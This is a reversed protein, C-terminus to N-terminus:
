LYDRNIAWEGASGGTVPPSVPSPNNCCTFLYPAFDAEVGNICVDGPIKRYGRSKMFTKQTGDTCPDPLPVAPDPVCPGTFGDARM